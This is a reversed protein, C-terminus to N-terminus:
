REEGLIALLNMFSDYPGDVLFLNVVWGPISGAPDAIFQQSIKTQRNNLKELKWNGQALHMRVIGKEEPVLEPRSRIESIYTSENNIVTTAEWIGDRNSLPWPFSIEVYNAITSDNPRKLTRVSKCNRFWEPYAAIDELVAIVTELSSNCSTIALFEKVPSDPYDRTYIKIGNADKKL